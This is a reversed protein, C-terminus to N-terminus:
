KGKLADNIKSKLELTKQEIISATKIFEDKEKGTPDTLGWDERYKSPLYPCEVGCGMTIVVDVSPLEALTKPKQTKAIDVGYLEKITEVADANIEAAPHTGASSAEFSDAAIIKAIAEAMQSRCSNHTCVFAVKVM